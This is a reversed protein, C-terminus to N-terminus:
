RLDERKGECITGESKPYRVVGAGKWNNVVGCGPFFAYRYDKGPCVNRFVLVGNEEAIAFLRVQKIVGSEGKHFKPSGYDKYQGQFFAIRYDGEMSCDRFGFSEGVDTMQLMWRCKKEEIEVRRLEAEIRKRDDEIRQREEEIKKRDEDAKKLAKEVEQRLQEVEPDKTLDTSWFCIGETTTVSIFVKRELRKLDMMIGIKEKIEKRRYDVSKSKAGIMVINTIKASTVQPSQSSFEIKLAIDKESVHVCTISLGSSGKKSYYELTLRVIESVVEAVKLAVEVSVGSSEAFEQFMEAEVSEENQTKLSERHKKMNHSEFAFNGGAKFMGYKASGGGQKKVLDDIEDQSKAHLVSRLFQKMTSSSMGYKENFSKDM